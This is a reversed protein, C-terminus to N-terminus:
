AEAASCGACWSASARTSCWGTSSSGTSGAARRAGAGLVPPLTDDPRAGARALSWRWRWRRRRARLAPLWARGALEGLSPGRRACGWGCCSRSPRRLVAARHGAGAGRPGARAHAGAVAGPQGGRGRGHGAGGRARPRRRGPLRADRGARRLAALLLRPDGARPRRRRLADGLWVELIPGALVILTVCVPVFLALTYRTGRVVLERLRREDGAAVYRSATPVVPVALAGGLAYLLNHARVPGEFSGSADGAHPLRGPDGPRLRVDGPQLARGRAALRRHARDGDGAPARRRRRRQPAAALRARRAVLASLLGSFLPM